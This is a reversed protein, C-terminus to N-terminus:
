NNIREELLSNAFELIHALPTLRLGANELEEFVLPAGVGALCNGLEIIEKPDNARQDDSGYHSLAIVCLLECISNDVRINETHAFAKGWSSAPPRKPELGKALACVISFTWFDLLRVFPQAEIRRGTKQHMQVYRHVEDKINRPFYLKYIKRSLFDTYENM